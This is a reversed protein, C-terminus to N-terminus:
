KSHSKLWDRLDTATRFDLLAEGLAEIRALPLKRIAQQQRPSVTGLRRHLQRLVLEIERHLGELRGKQRGETMGLRVLPNNRLAKPPIWMGRISGQKKEL